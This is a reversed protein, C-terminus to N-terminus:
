YNLVYHAAKIGSLVAKELTLHVNSATRECFADGALVLLGPKELALFAEGYVTKPHSYRWRHVQYDIVPSGLWHSAEHFIKEAIVAEDIDWHSHSFEPTCHITVAFGQPSIDKKHNCAIAAVSSHSPRLWGPSAIFSVQELLALISICPYYTVGELKSKISSPLSISSNELLTLSQPVPPTMILSEGQFQQGKETEVTWVSNHHKIAIARTQLHVELDKALYQGLSRNSDQGRYGSTPTDMLQNSWETVIGELLWQDVWQQFLPDSVAFFQMGYDFVGTIKESHHIRRTALRGGIGRGKDLITVKKGKNQLINAAILGSIGGGIILCSQVSISM